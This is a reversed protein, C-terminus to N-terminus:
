TPQPPQSSHGDPEHIAKRGNLFSTTTHLFCLRPTILTRASLRTVHWVCRNTFIEHGVGILAASSKLTQKCM